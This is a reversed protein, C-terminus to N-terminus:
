GDAGADDLQVVAVTKRGKLRGALLLRNIEQEVKPCGM